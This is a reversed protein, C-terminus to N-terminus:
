RSKILKIIENNPKYSLEHGGTKFTELNIEHNQIYTELTELPVNADDLSNILLTPCKTVMNNLDESADKMKQLSKFYELQKKMMSDKQKHSSKELYLYRTYPDVVPCIAISFDGLKQCSLWLSHFGGSSSGIIILEKNGETLKIFEVLEVLYNRTIDLNNQPFNPVYVKSNLEKSFSLRQLENSTHNGDHFCGGHILLIVNTYDKEAYTRVSTNKFTIDIYM